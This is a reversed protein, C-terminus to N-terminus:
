SNRIPEYRIKLIKSIPLFIFKLITIINRYRGQRIRNLIVIFLSVRVLMIYKPFYYSTLMLRSRINYFESFISRSNGINISGGEQHYIKFSNIIKFDIHKKKARMVMDMEDGYFFLEEDFLGIERVFCRSFLQACGNPFLISYNKQRNLDLVKNSTALFPNYANCFGVLKKTIFHYEPFGFYHSNHSLFNNKNLYTDLRKLFSNLIFTDSNLVLVYDYSFNEKKILFNHGAMFGLNVKSKYLKIDVNRDVFKKIFKSLKSHSNNNSGNDLISIKLAKYDQNILNVILNKTVLYNNFNLISIFFRNKNAEM